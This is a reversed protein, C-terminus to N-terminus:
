IIHVNITFFEWLRVLGAFVRDIRSLEPYKSGYLASGNCASRQALRAAGTLGPIM